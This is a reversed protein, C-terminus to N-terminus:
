LELDLVDSANEQSRHASYVRPVCIYMYASCGGVCVFYYFLSNFYIFLDLTFKRVESMTIFHCSTNLTSSKCQSPLFRHLDDESAAYLLFCLTKGLPLQQFYSLIGFLIEWNRITDFTFEM